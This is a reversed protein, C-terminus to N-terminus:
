AVVHNFLPYSKTDSEDYKVLGASSIRFKFPMPDYTGGTMKIVTGKRVDSSEEERELKLMGSVYYGETGFSGFGNKGLGSTVVTYTDPISLTKFFQNLFDNNDVILSTIPDIVLRSVGFETVMIKIQDTLIRIYNSMSRFDNTIDRKMKLTRDALELVEIAGEKYYSRFDFSFSEASNIYDRGKANALIMLGKEGRRAGQVLFQTGAATKGSGPAGYIMYVSGRRMLNGFRSDFDEVGFLTNRIRKRENMVVAINCVRTMKSEVSTLEREVYIAKLQLGCDRTIANFEMIDSVLDESVGNLVAIRTREDDRSTLILDFKHQVGSKGTLVVNNGFTFDEGLSFEQAVKYLDVQPDLIM